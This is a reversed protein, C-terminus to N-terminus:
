LLLNFLFFFGSPVYFAWWSYSWDLFFLLIRILFHSIHNLYRNVFFVQYFLTTTRIRQHADSDGHFENFIWFDHKGDWFRCWHRDSTDATQCWHQYWSKQYSHFFIWLHSKLLWSSTMIYKIELVVVICKRARCILFYTFVVVWRIGTVM